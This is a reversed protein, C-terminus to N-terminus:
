WGDGTARGEGTREELLNRMQEAKWGGPDSDSSQKPQLRAFQEAVAERFLDEFAVRNPVSSGRGCVLMAFAQLKPENSM